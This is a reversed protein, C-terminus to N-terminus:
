DIHGGVTMETAFMNPAQSRKLADVKNLDWSIDLRGGTYRFGFM